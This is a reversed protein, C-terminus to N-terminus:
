KKKTKKRKKGDVKGRLKVTISANFTVNKQKNKKVLQKNIPDYMHVHRCSKVIERCKEIKIWIQKLDTRM